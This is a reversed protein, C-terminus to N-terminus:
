LWRKRHFWLACLVVLVIQIVVGYIIFTTKGQLHNAMWGFNQGFFGTIFTLPFFITAIVTLKKMVVNMQNSVTSLYVDMVGSLLDRYTDIMDSIRIMHDYVDRFYREDTEALGPLDAVGGAVRAFMDRQPTVVKRMAVLQKKLGFITQLQDDSPNLFIGDELEDIQDDMNSLLPFFSDALGDLIHYLLISPNDIAKARKEYRNRVDDLASCVDNHVTILLKESYFLHIEALLDDDDEMSTGYAVIHIFDDYDDIKARQNFKESDEVALPHFGFVDRLVDFTAPDPSNLDIWMYGKQSDLLNRAEEATFSGDGKGGPLIKYSPTSPAPM